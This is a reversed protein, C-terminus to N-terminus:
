LVMLPIQKLELRLSNQASVHPAPNSDGNSKTGPSDNSDTKQSKSKSEPIANVAGSGQKVGSANANNIEDGNVFVASACKEYKRVTLKEIEATSSELKSKLAEIEIKSQDNERVVEPSSVQLKIEAALQQMQQLNQAQYQRM